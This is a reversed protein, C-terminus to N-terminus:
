VLKDIIPLLETLHDIIFDPEYAELAKRTFAGTTIGISHLCGANQGERIDVETDGVKIVQRADPVGAQQMLREIMYPAPRGAPVESSSIVFDVKESVWALRQMIVDTINKSFGTNLARRIGREKLRAFVEEAGPLPM